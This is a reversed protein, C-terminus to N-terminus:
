NTDNSDKNKYLMMNQIKDSVQRLAASQIAEKEAILKGMLLHSLEESPPIVLDPVEVDKTTLLIYNPYSSMDHSLVVLTGEELRQWEYRVFHYYLKHIM